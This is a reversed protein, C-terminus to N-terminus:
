GRPDLKNCMLLASNLYESVKLSQNKCTYCQKYGTKKRKQKRHGKTTVTQVCLLMLKFDPSVEAGRGRAQVMAHRLYHKEVFFIAINWTCSMIICHPECATINKFRNLLSNAPTKGVRTQHGEEGSPLAQFWLAVNMVRNYWVCYNSYLTFPWKDWM